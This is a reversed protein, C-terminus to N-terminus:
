VEPPLLQFLQSQCQISAEELKLPVIMSQITDALKKQAEFEEAPGWCQVGYPWKNRRTVVRLPQPNPLTLMMPFLLSDLKTESLALVPHQDM